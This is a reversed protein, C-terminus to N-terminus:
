LQPREPYPNERLSNIYNICEATLGICENVTKDETLELTLRNNEDIRYYYNKNVTKQLEVLNIISTITEDTLYGAHISPIGNEKFHIQAKLNELEEKM